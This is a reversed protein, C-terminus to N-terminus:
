HKNKKYKRSNKYKRIKSKVNIYDDYLFNFRKDTKMSYSNKKQSIIGNRIYSNFNRNRQPNKTLPMNKLGFTESDKTLGLSRYYKDDEEFIYNMHKTTRNYRFENKSIKKNKKQM